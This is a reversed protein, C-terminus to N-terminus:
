NINQKLQETKFIWFEFNANKSTKLVIEGGVFM